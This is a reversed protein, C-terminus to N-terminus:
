HRSSSTRFGPVSLGQFASITARLVHWTGDLGSRSTSYSLPAAPPHASSNFPALHLFHLPQQDSFLDQSKGLSGHQWTALFPCTCVCTYEAQSQPAYGSRSRPFNPVPGPTSLSLYARVQLVPPPPNSDSSPLLPRLIPYPAPERNCGTPSSIIVGHQRFCFGVVDKGELLVQRKRNPVM